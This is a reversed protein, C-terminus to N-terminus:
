GGERVRRARSAGARGRRGKARTWRPAGAPAPEAAEKAVRCAEVGLAFFIWVLVWHASSHFSAHIWFAVTGALFGAVVFRHYEKAEKLSRLLGRLQAFLFLVIAAVGLVGTQAVLGLISNHAGRNPVGGYAESESRFAGLGVGLPNEVLMRWAAPYQYRRDALSTPDRFSELRNHVAGLAGTSGLVVLLGLLCLGAVVLPKVAARVERQWTLYLVTVASSTLVALYASRSFSLAVAVALLVTVTVSVVRAWRRQPGAALFISLPLVMTFLTAYANPNGSFGQLRLTREAMPARALTGWPFHVRGQMYLYLSVAALFVSGLVFAATILSLDRRSRILQVTLFYFLFISLVSTLERVSGAAAVGRVAGVGFAVIYSLALLFIPLDLPTRKWRFGRGGSVALHAVFGVLTALGFVQKLNLPFGPLAELLTFPAVLSIAVLGVKPRFVSMIGVLGVAVVLYGSM